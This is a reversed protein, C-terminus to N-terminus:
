PKGASEPPPELLSVQSPPVSAVSGKAKESWFIYVVGLVAGLAELTFHRYNGLLVLIILEYNTLGPPALSLV